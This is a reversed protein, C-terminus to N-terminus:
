RQRHWRWRWRQSQYALRSRSPEVETCFQARSGQGCGGGGREAAVIRPAHHLHLPQRYRPEIFMYAITGLPHMEVPPTVRDSNICQFPSQPFGFRKQLPFYPSHSHCQNSHETAFPHYVSPDDIPRGKVFQVSARCAFVLRFRM